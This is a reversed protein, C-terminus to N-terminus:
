KEERVNQMNIRDHKLRVPQDLLQASLCVSLCAPLCAPLCVSLKSIKM